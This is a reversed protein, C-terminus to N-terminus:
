AMTVNDSLLCSQKDDVHCCCELRTFGTPEILGNLALLTESTLKLRPYTRHASCLLQLCSLDAETVQSCDIILEPHANLGEVLAEKFQRIHQITVEGGVQLVAPHHHDTPILTCNFM